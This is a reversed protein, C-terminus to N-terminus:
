RQCKKFTKPSPESDGCNACMRLKKPKTGSDTGNERKPEESKVPAPTDFVIPEARYKPPKATERLIEEPTKKTPIVIQVNPGKQGVILTQHDSMHHQAFREKYEEKLLDQIVKLQDSKPITDSFDIVFRCIIVM